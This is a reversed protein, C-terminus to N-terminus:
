YFYLILTDRVIAVIRKKKRAITCTWKVWCNRRSLKYNPAFYIAGPWGRQKEWKFLNRSYEPKHRFNRPGQLFAALRCSRSSRSLPAACFMNFLEKKKELSLSFFRSRLLCCLSTDKLFHVIIMDPKNDFKQLPLQVLHTSRSHLAVRVRRGSISFFYKDNKRLTDRERVFKGNKTNKAVSFILFSSLNHKFVCIVVYNNSRHIILFQLSLMRIQVHLRFM